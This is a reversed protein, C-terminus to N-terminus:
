KVWRQTALLAMAAFGLIVFTAELLAVKRSASRRQMATQAELVEEEEMDDNNREELHVDDDGGDVKRLLFSSVSPVLFPEGGPFATNVEEEEEREEQTKLTSSSLHNIKGRILDMRLQLEAHTRSFLAPLQDSEQHYMTDNSPYLYYMEQDQYLKSDREIQQNEFMLWTWMSRRLLEAGPLFHKYRYQFYQLPGDTAAPLLTLTWLFRLLLDLIIAVYYFWIHRRFLLRGRLFRYNYDGKKRPATSFLAWDMKVDDWGAVCLSSIM